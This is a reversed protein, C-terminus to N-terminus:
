NCTRLRNVRTLSCPIAQATLTAFERKLIHIDTLAVRDWNGFDLFVVDYTEPNKTEALSLDFFFFSCDRCNVKLLLLLEHEISGIMKKISLSVINVVVGDAQLIPCRIKRISIVSLIFSPTRYM